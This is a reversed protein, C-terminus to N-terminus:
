RVWDGRENFVLDTLEGPQLWVDTGLAVPLKQANWKMIDLTIEVLQENTFHKRLTAITSDSLASPQTMLADALDLAAQQHEPLATTNRELVNAITTEDLGQDRAVALRVSLWTGCDHHHACRMRVIETTIPDVTSLRVTAAAIASM